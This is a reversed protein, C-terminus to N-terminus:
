NIQARRRVRPAEAGDDAARCRAPCLVAQLEAAALEHLRSPSGPPQPGRYRGVNRNGECDVAAISLKSSPPAATPASSAAPASAGQGAAAARPRRKQVRRKPKGAPRKGQAARKAQSRLPRAQARAKRRAAAPLLERLGREEVLTALTEAESQAERLEAGRRDTSVLGTACIHFGRTLFAVLEEPGGNFRDISGGALRGALRLGRPEVSAARSLSTILMGSSAAPASAGQGAAAARPKRKQVRRKPKGAPKKGQAARKAQSKLRKAQAKAKRRAAAPLLERLGREEVLKALAEPGLEKCASQLAGLDAQACAFSRGAHELLEEGERLLGRLDEAGGTREPGRPVGTKANPSFAYPRQTHHGDYCLEPLGFLGRANATAAAAVVDAPQALAQSLAALVHPLTRPENHQPFPRDMNFPTLYPADSGLLVRGLPLRGGSLAEHLEAGRKDNCVLGTVCIHFGRALYAALEEPGGNFCNISGGVLRGSFRDLAALTDAFAKREHVVVPMKLSAALELQAEFWAAQAEKPADCEYDLGCEGVAVVYPRQAEILARLTPLESLPTAASEAPHVGATAFVSRVHERALAASAESSALSTSLAVVQSVGAAAARHLVASSERALEKEFLNAGADVLQPLAPLAAYAAPTDVNSAPEAFTVRFELAYTNALRPGPFCLPLSFVDDDCVARYAAGKRAAATHAGVEAAADPAAPEAPAGEAQELLQQETHVVQVGFLPAPLEIKLAPGVGPRKAAMVDAVAGRVDRGTVRTRMAFPRQLRTTTGDGNRVCWRVKIETRLDGERQMPVVLERDEVPTESALNHALKTQLLASVADWFPPSRAAGQAKLQRVSEALRAVDAALGEAGPPRAGRGVAGSRQALRWLCQRRRGWEDPTRPVDPTTQPM